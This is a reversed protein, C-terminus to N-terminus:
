VPRQAKGREIAAALKALGAQKRRELEEITPKDPEPLPGSLGGDDPPQMRKNNNNKTSNNNKNRNNNKNNNQIRDYVTTNSPIRNYVTTYSPIDENEKAEEWARRAEEDRPTQGTKKCYDLWWRLGINRRNRNCTEDYREMAWEIKPRILTWISVMLRDEFPPVEGTLAYDMMASFMKGKEEDTLVRMAEYCDFYIIIGKMEKKTAM